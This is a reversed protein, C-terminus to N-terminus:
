MQNWTNAQTQEQQKELAIQAMVERRKKSYVFFMSWAIIAGIFLIAAFAYMIAAAIDFAYSMEQMEEFFYPDYYSDKPMDYYYYEDSIIGYVLGLLLFTFACVLDGIGFGMSIFKQATYTKRKQPRASPQPATYTQQANPTNHTYFQSRPDERTQAGCFGCFSQGDTLPKGCKSCFRQQYNM